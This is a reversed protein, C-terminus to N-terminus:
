GPRTTALAVKPWIVLVRNAVPSEPEDRCIWNARFNLNQAAPFRVCPARTDAIGTRRRIKLDRPAQDLGQNAIVSAKSGVSIPSLMGASGRIKYQCRHFFLSSECVGLTTVITEPDKM